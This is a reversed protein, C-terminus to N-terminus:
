GKKGEKAAYKCIKKSEDGTNASGREAKQFFHGDIDQM